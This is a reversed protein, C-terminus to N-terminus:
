LLVEKKIQLLSEAYKQLEIDITLTINKAKTPDIDEISNNYPGIVRNFRDKQFYKKGKIGRLENEYYKEIGQKGIM